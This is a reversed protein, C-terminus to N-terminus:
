RNYAIQIQDQGYKYVETFAENVELARVGTGVSNPSKIMRIEDWLNARYFSDHVKPGGEVIVSQINRDRLIKLVFELNESPPVEIWEKNSRLESRLPNFILTPKDDTLVKSDEKIANIGELVIRIPDDGAYARTTLSPNDQNITRSGVLIAPEQARWSHSLKQTSPHSIWNITREQASRAIDVFGDSSEAWKLIIYPRDKLFFTNFWRNVWMSESELIGDIVEVGNDRLLKIGRGSVKPNPDQQGIVVRGIGKELILNACPPTKGHHSCPELNVYITADKLLEQNSVSAIANVEAHAEGYQAHFGEGIVKGEHVIVSGVLPNPAVHGLGMEALELCRKMYHEHNM